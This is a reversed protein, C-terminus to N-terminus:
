FDCNVLPTPSAMPSKITLPTEFLLKESTNESIPNHYQSVCVPINQHRKEKRDGL